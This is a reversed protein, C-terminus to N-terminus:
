DMEEPQSMLGAILGFVGIVLFTNCARTNKSFGLLWPASLATLGGLTDLVLHMKYPM